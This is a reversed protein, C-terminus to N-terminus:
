NPPHNFITCNEPFDYLEVSYRVIQDFITFDYLKRFVGLVDYLKRSFRFVVCTHLHERYPGSWSFSSAVASSQYGGSNLFSNNVLSRHWNANNDMDIWDASLDVGLQNSLRFVDFKINIRQIRLETRGNIMNSCLHAIKRWESEYAISVLFRTVDGSQMWVAMTGESLSWLKTMEFLQVGSTLVTIVISRPGRSGWASTTPLWNSGLRNIVLPSPAFSPGPALRRLQTRWRLCQTMTRSIECFM